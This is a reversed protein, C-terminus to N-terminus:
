AEDLGPKWAEFSTFGRHPGIAVGELGAAELWGRLRARDPPLAHGRYSGAKYIARARRAGDSLFTTGVVQGGPKLCRSIESIAGEPEHLMHLGSYSIFLDIGVDAFPLATMDAKMVEVQGLSRKAARRRARRVMKPCLDGALYRVDQDPRLARFSVGGGCPVDAIVAGSGAEEIPKMSEYLPTSDIGWIMRGLVRVLRPREIYFDYFAGFPGACANPVQEAVAV